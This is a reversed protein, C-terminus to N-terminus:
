KSLNIMDRSACTKKLIILQATNFELQNVMSCLEHAARFTIYNRKRSNEYAVDDDYSNDESTIKILVEDLIALLENHENSNTAYLTSKEFVESPFIFSYRTKIQPDFSKITYSKDLHMLIKGLIITDLSTLRTSEQLAKKISFAQSKARATKWEKIIKITQKNFSLDYKEAATQIQKDIYDYAVKNKKYHQQDIEDTPLFPMQTFLLACITCAVTSILQWVTAKFFRRVLMWNQLFIVIPSLILLLKGKKYLSFEENIMAHDIGFIADGLQICYALAICQILISNTQIDRLYRNKMFPKPPTFWIFMTLCLGLTVSIFSYFNRYFNREDESFLILDSAISAFVGRWLEQLYHIGYFLTLAFLFGIFIGAWFRKQGIREISLHPKFEPSM